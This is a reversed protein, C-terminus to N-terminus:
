AQTPWVLTAKVGTDTNEVSLSGNHLKMVEHAFSLGLGTSKKTSNPRPLSFFREYLRALAYEPITDGHNEICLKHMSNQIKHEIAITSGSHCFEIANDVINGVAQSLLLKDGLVTTDDAIDIALQTDQKKLALKRESVLTNLEKSLNFSQQNTLSTLRELKALSLMRNVLLDMRQNSNAINTIFKKRDAEHLTDQLIETAANISTIPTKLEHTLSHIYDEVYNKGDVKNRLDEMSDAVESLRSDWFKPKKATHGNAMSRAYATLKKLTFTFWHSVLYGLALALLVIFLTYQRLANSEAFLFFELNKIDKTVSLVGVIEGKYKIPAAIVMIKPDGEKRRDAFVYSTRAGYEGRLTRAVDRWKSFDKDVSRGTSDYQVIGNTDTIYVNMDVHTKELNFIQTSFTKSLTTQWVNAFNNTTITETTLASIKKTNKTNNEKAVLKNDSELSYNALESEIMAAMFHSTDVLVSEASQRMSINIREIAKDIIFWALTGLIAFYLIFARLSFSVKM